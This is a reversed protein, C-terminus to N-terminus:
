LAGGKTSEALALMTAVHLEGITGSNDLLAQPAFQAGSSETSHSRPKPEFGPRQIQWIVGGYYRQVLDAENPRRCDALVIGAPMGHRARDDRIAARMASVLYDPNCHRRYDGWHQMLTRPSLPTDLDLLKDALLPSLYSIFRDSGCQRLSLRELTTEKMEDALLLEAPIDYAESIEVRLVDAFSYKKFGAHIVLYDAVTDKGVRGPGTLGITPYLATCANARAQSPRSPTKM